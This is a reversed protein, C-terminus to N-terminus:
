GAALGILRAGAGSLSFLSNAAFGRRPSPMRGYAFGFDGRLSSGAIRKPPAPELFNNLLSMIFFSNDTIATKSIAPTNANGGAACAVTTV